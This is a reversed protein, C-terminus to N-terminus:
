DLHALTIVEQMAPIKCEVTVPFRLPLRKGSWHTWSLDIQAVVLLNVHDHLMCESILSPKPSSPAYVPMQFEISELSDTRSSVYILSGRGKGIASSQDKELFISLEMARISIPFFNHNMIRVNSVWNTMLQDGDYFTTNDTNIDFSDIQFTAGRPYLIFAM